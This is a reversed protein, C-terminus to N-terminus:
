TNRFSKLYRTTSPNLPKRVAQRTFNSFQAGLNNNYWDKGFEEVLHVSDIVRLRIAADFSLPVGDSTMLDDFHATYQAPKMNVYISQTSLAIWNLGTKISERVIGGSGFIWPRKILVAEEGADPSVSSCGTLFIMGIIPLYKVKM